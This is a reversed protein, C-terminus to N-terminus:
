DRDLPRPQYVREGQQARLGQLPIGPRLALELYVTSGLGGSDQLHLVVRYVGEGPYDHDLREPVCAFTTDSGDGFSLRGRLRPGEERDRSGSLEFRVRNPGAASAELWATPQHNRDLMDPSWAPEYTVKDERSLQRQGSGDSGMIYLDRVGGRDSVFVIQSDGLAWVPRFDGAENDTLQTPGSGDTRIVLIELDGDRDSCYVVSTGDASLSPHRDDAADSTLRVPPQDGVKLYIDFTGELDAAFTRVPEEGALPCSGALLLAMLRRVM